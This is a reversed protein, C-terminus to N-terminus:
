VGDARNKENNTSKGHAPHRSGSGRGARTRESPKMEAPQDPSGQPRDSRSSKKAPMVPMLELLRQVFEGRAAELVNSAANPRLYATAKLNPTRSKPVFERVPRTFTLATTNSSVARAKGEIEALPHNYLFRIPVFDEPHCTIYQWLGAATQFGLFNLNVNGITCLFAEAVRWRARVALSNNDADAPYIGGLEDRCFAELEADQMEHALELGEAICASLPQQGAHVKAILKAIKEPQARAKVVDPVASPSNPTIPNIADLLETLGSEYSEIFNSYRIDKLLMPITCKEILCPLVYTRGHNIQDWFKAKWERDVWNSAVSPKSLILLM